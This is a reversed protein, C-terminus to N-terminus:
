ERWTKGVVINCVTSATVGFERALQTQTVRESDPRLGEIYRRRIEDVQSKNLKFKGPPM